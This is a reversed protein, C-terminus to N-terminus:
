RRSAEWSSNLDAIQDPTLTQIGLDQAEQVIYDIFRSMQKTNYTSTGYYLIVDTCGEIDSQGLTECIFGIGMSGWAVKITEVSKNDVSITRFVGVDKIAEKYVELKTNGVVQAIKDILTWAYANSNLSRKEKHEKIQFQKDKDQQFLWITIEQANGIM